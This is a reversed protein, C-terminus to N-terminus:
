TAEMLLHQRRLVSTIARFWHVSVRVRGDKSVLYDRGLGARLTDAVDAPSFHTCAALDEASARDLQVISRLVFYMNSPLTELDAIAPRRFLRVYTQGERQGLSQCLFHLAVTPNGVSYDWLIRSFDREANEYESALDDSGELHGPLMLEDYRLKLDLEGTRLRVLSRIQQESFRKLQLVEDFSASDSRARRFYQWAPTNFSFIWSTDGSQNRAFELLRDMNSLGGIVPRILLHADDLAIVKPSRRRITQGVVEASTASPLGFKEAIQGLVSQFDGPVVAVVLAEEETLPALARGILTSKGLGREGVVALAANRQRAIEARVVELESVMVEEIVGATTDSSALRTATEDSLAQYSAQNRRSLSQKEVERRFLYALLTQTTSFHSAQKMIYRKLGDYLLYGGGVASAPLSALGTSHAAVWRIVGTPHRKAQARALVLPRWWITLLTVIPLVLIWCSSLVWSYVAGKGVSAEALQLVMGVVVITIGVLRLSRIRLKASSDTGSVQRSAIADVLHIIFGGILTWLVIVWLYEVEPLAGVGKAIHVLATALLLWELPGRVQGAYWFLESLSRTYPTAPRQQAYFNHLSRLVGDARKRWAQWLFVLLGLKFLAGVIPIPSSRLEQVQSRLFRPLSSTHYRIELAIQALERSAQGVGASGFGQLSSRLKPTLHQMLRLRAENVQVVSDRLVEAHQWALADASRSLEIAQERAQEHESSLEDDSIHGPLEAAPGPDPAENLSSNARKLQTKLAGRSGQLAEVIQVYLRDADRELDKHLLSRSGLERVKRVWTLAEERGTEMSKRDEALRVAFHAQDERVGLIRAKEEAVLRLAESRAKRSEEMAQERASAAEAVAQEAESLQQEAQETAVPPVEPQEVPATHKEVLLARAATDLLAYRFRASKLREQELLLREGHDLTALDQDSVSSSADAGPEAASGVTSSDRPGEGESEAGREREAREKRWSEFQEQLAHNPRQNSPDLLSVSLLDSVSQEPGLRGDLYAELRDADASTQAVREILRTQEAQAEQYKARRKEHARLLATQKWAPLALFEAQLRLVRAGPSEGEDNPAFYVQALNHLQVTLLAQVSVSAPLKGDLLKQLQKAQLELDGVELDGPRASATAPLEAKETSHPAAKSPSEPPAKRLPQAQARDLTLVVVVLLCVLPAIEQWGRKM